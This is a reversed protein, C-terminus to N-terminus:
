GVSKGESNREVSVEVERTMLQEVCDADDNREAPGFWSLSNQDIVLSVQERVVIRWVGSHYVRLVAIYACTM